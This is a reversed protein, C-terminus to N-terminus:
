FGTNQLSLIVHQILDNLTKQCFIPPLNKYKLVVMVLGEVQQEQTETNKM